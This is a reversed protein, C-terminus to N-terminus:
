NKSGSKNAVRAEYEVAEQIEKSTFPNKKPIKLSNFSSKKYFRNHKFEDHFNVMKEGNIISNYTIANSGNKITRPTKSKIIIVEKCDDAGVECLLKMMNGKYEEEFENVFIFATHGDNNKINVYTKINDIGYLTGDIGNRLIYEFGDINNNKAAEILPTDGNKSTISWDADTFEIMDSILDNDTDDYNIDGKAALLAPTDGNADKINWNFNTDTLLFFMDYDKIYNFLTENDVISNVNVGKKLLGKFAKDQKNKFAEHLSEELIISLPKKAVRRRTCRTGVCDFFVGGRKKFKRTKVGRRM